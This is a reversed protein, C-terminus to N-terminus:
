EVVYVSYVGSVSIKECKEYKRNVSTELYQVCEEIEKLEDLTFVVIKDSDAIKADFHPVEDLPIRRVVDAFTFDYLGHHMSGIDDAFVVWPLDTVAMLQETEYDSRQYWYQVNDPTLGICGEGLILLSFIVGEIWHQGSIHKLNRSEWVHRLHECVSCLAYVIGVLLTGIVPWYYREAVRVLSHAVVCTQLFAAGAIVYFKVDKVHNFYIYLAFLGCLFIWGIVYHGMFTSSVIAQLGMKVHEFMSKMDLLNDISTMGKGTFLFVRWEPYLMTTIAIGVVCIQIYYFIEKYRKKILFALGYFGSFAIAFVWFHYHTLLGAALVLGMMIRYKLSSLREEKLQLM